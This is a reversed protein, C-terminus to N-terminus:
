PLPSWPSLAGLHWNAMLIDHCPTKSIEWWAQPEPGLEAVGDKVQIWDEPDYQGLADEPSPDPLTAM